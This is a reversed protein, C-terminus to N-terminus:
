VGAYGGPFLQSHSSATFSKANSRQIDIIIRENLAFKTAGVYQKGSQTCTILYIVNASKSNSERRLKVSARSSSKAIETPTMLKCIFCTQDGCPKPEGTPGNDSTDPKLKAHVLIYKSM